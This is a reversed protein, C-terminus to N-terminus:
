PIKEIRPEMRKQGGMGKPRSFKLATAPGRKKKKQASKLPNPGGTEPNGRKTSFTKNKKTKKEGLVPGLVLGLFAGGGGGETLRKESEAARVV